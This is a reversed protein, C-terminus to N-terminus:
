PVDTSFTPGGGLTGDNGPSVQDTITGGAISDNDGMRWWLGPSYSTLDIPGNGSNYMALLDAESVASTFIGLEDIKGNYFSSISGNRNKAGVTIASTTIKAGGGSSYTGFGDGVKTGDLYIDYGANGSNTSSNSSEWRIGLHHWTNSSVTVGSGTYSWLHNINIVTIVENTVPGFWDGGLAIGMDSGGFGLLYSMVGSGYAVDPKFWVSLGEITLSSPSSGADIYDDTGDFDVSYSNAFAPAQGDGELVYTDTGIPIVNLAAYQGATATKSSLGYITAGGEIQVTGTGSQVITCSFGATLGTPITVTVIASNSCVIVKGNDSDSLTRATTTESVISFFASSFDTSALTAATGLGLNTRATADSGLDSLNNSALLDGQPAAAVLNAVTVKKTTGQASGTTDSVDTIPIIDAVDPTGGLSTLSSIKKNAM